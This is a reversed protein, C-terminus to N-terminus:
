RERQRLGAPPPAHAALQPPVPPPQVKGRDKTASATRRPPGKEAIYTVVQTDVTIIERFSMSFRGLQPTNKDRTMSIETMVMNPYTQVSTVILFPTLKNQAMDRELQVLRQYAYNSRGAPSEYGPVANPMKIDAVSAVLTLTAGSLYCHDSINVGTEIPNETVQLTQSHQEVLVADFQLVDVVDGENDSLVIADRTNQRMTISELQAM